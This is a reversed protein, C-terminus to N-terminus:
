DLDRFGREGVIAAGLGREVRARADRVVPDEVEQIM